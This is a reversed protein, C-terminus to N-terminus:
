GLPLRARVVFGGTSGRGSELEGGYLAVRERMGVLGHGAATAALAPGNGDDSVELEIENGAYTIAVRAVTPGGHKLANTLAEQVIRYASLDVGPPLSVPDGEIELDVPLGAEGMQRILADLRSLSPQPALALEADDKRLMGLLRRMEVLAERGATEIAQLVDRTREAESGLAMREAGAQVVIVGVSHAVVDHLERAIRAREEEAAVRANNDRERELVSARNELQIAHRRRARMAAGFAWAGGLVAGSFIYDGVTSDDHQAVGLWAAALILAGGALARPTEEYAAVSYLVVVVAVNVSIAGDLYGAALDQVSYAVAVAAAAWLPARRRWALAATIVVAVPAVVGRDASVSGTLWIEVQATATLTVALAIDAAGAKRSLWQIAGQGRRMLWVYDLSPARADASGVIEATPKIM